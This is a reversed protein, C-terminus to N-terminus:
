WAGRLEISITRNNVGSVCDILLPNDLYIKNNRVSFHNGDISIFNYYSSPVSGSVAFTFTDSLQVTGSYLYCSYVQSGSELIYSPVPLIQINNIISSGSPNIYKYYDAIGLTLNDDTENVFNKGLGLNLIRASTNSTTQLNNFNILGGGYIRYCTWQQPNGFLFRQDERITRTNNNLQTIVKITGMPIIPDTRNRNDPTTPNYEIICHESYSHGSYDVWRLVNNCRRVIATQALSKLVSVNVAIWYNNDFFFKEGLQIDDHPTQFLFTKFDDGLKEGTTPEVATYIRIDLPIYSGSGFYTEEKITFINFADYFEADVLAFFDDTWVQKPSSFTTPSGATFYHYSM